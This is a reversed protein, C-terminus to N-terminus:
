IFDQGNIRISPETGKKPPPPPTGAGRKPPNPNSYVKAFHEAASAWTDRFIAEERDEMTKARVLFEIDQQVQELGARDLKTGRGAHASAVQNVIGQMDEASINPKYELSYTGEEGNKFSVPISTIKESVATALKQFSAMRAESQVDKVPQGQEPLTMDVKKQALNQRAIKAAEEIKAQRVRNLYEANEADEDPKPFKEGLLIDINNESTGNLRMEARLVDEHEMSDFDQLQLQIFPILDQAGKGQKLMDNINKAFDNAFPNPPEQNRFTELEANAAEWQSRYNKLENVQEVSELGTMASFAQQFSEQTMGEPLQPAQPETNQVEQVLADVNEEM